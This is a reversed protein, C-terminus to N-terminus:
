ERIKALLDKVREETLDPLVYFNPKYRGANKLIDSPIYKRLVRQLLGIDELRKKHKIVSRKSLNSGRALQQISLTFAILGNWPFSPFTQAITEIAHYLAMASKGIGKVKANQANFVGALILLNYNIHGNNENLKCEYENRCASRMAKKFTSNECQVAHTGFRQHYETLRRAENIAEFYDMQIYEVSKDYVRYIWDAVAEVKREQPISPSRIVANAIVCTASHRTSSEYLGNIWLNNVCAKDSIFQHSQIQELNTEVQYGSSKMSYKNLNLLFDLSHPVPRFEKDLLHCRNSTAPHVGLPLKICAKGNGTASPYIKDHPSNIKKLLREIKRVIQQTNSLPVAQVFYMTLHYGKGGSFSVHFPYGNDMLMKQAAAIAVIDDYDYDIAIWKSLSNHSAPACISVKGLVHSLLVDFPIEEKVHAYKKSSLGMKGSYYFSGDTFYLELLVQALQYDIVSTSNTLSTSSKDM